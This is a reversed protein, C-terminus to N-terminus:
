DRRQGGARIMLPAGRGRARHPWRPAELEPRGSELNGIWQNLFSMQVCRGCLTVVSFPIVTPILHALRVFGSPTLVYPRVSAKAKLSM